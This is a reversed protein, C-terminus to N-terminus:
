GIIFYEIFGINYKTYYILGFIGGSISVILAVYVPLLSKYIGIIEKEKDFVSTSM